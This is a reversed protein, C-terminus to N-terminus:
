YFVVKLCGNKVNKDFTFVAKWLFENRKLKRKKRGIRKIINFPHEIIELKSKKNKFDGEYKYSLFINSYLPIEIKNDIIDKKTFEAHYLTKGYAWFYPMKTILGTRSFIFALIFPILYFMYFYLGLFYILFDLYNTRGVYLSCFIWGMIFMYTVLFYRGIKNQFFRYCIKLASDTGVYEFKVPDYRNKFDISVRCNNPNKQQYKM